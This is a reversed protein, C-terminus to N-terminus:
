SVVVSQDVHTFNKIAELWKYKAEASIEAINLRATIARDCREVGEPKVKGDIYGIGEVSIFFDLPGSLDVSTPFVIEMGGSAIRKIRGEVKGGSPFIFMASSAFNKVPVFWHLPNPKVTRLRKFIKMKIPVGVIDVMAMFRGSQYFRATRRELGTDRYEDDSTTTEVCVVVPYNADTYGEFECNIKKITLTVEGRKFSSTRYTQAYIAQRAVELLMIGPVHEHHKRYFFYNSLDNIMNMYYRSPREDCPMLDTVSSLEHRQYATIRREQAIFHNMLVVEHEERIYKANLVLEGSVDKYYDGVFRLAEDRLAAKPLVSPVSQRVFLGKTGRVPLYHQDLLARQTATLWELSLVESQFRTPLEGRFNSILVDDLHEKHVLRAEVPAHQFPSM